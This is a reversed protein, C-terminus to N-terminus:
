DAAKAIQKRMNGVLSFGSTTEESPGAQKALAKEMSRVMIPKESQGEVKQGLQKRMLDAVSMSPAKFKSM